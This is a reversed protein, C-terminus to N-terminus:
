FHYYMSNLHTHVANIQQETWNLGLSTQCRNVQKTLTESSKVKHDNRTYLISGDGGTMAAHCAICNEQHLTAGSEAKVLQFICSVVLVTFLLFQKKM